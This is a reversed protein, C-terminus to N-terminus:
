RDGRRPQNGRNDDRGNRQDNHHDEGRQPRAAPRTERVPVPRNNRATAYRKDKSDRINGQKGHYNRYKSYQKLNQAHNLYPKPTNMVVKYGNYLNYGSYRPPLTKRFVWQGNILYVYQQASVNYYADVDPLYYYDVHNYGAPGWSPQSGININLSVQANAKISSFSAVGIIVALVIRKM